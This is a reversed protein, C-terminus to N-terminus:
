VVGYSIIHDFLIQLHSSIFYYRFHIIYCNSIYFFKHWTRLIEHIYLTHMYIYAISLAHASMNSYDNDVATLLYILWQNIQYCITIIKMEYMYIYYYYYHYQWWFICVGKQVENSWWLYCYRYSFQISNFRISNFQIVNM